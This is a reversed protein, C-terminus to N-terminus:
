QSIALAIYPVGFLMFNALKFIAMGMYHTFNFQERTIGIMKHHVKFLWDSAFFIFGAWWLLVAFNILFGYLFFDKFMETFM